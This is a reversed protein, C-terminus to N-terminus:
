SVVRYEYAKSGARIRKEVNYNGYKAARLERLRATVSSDSITVKHRTLIIDCLEYPMRWSGDSMIKLVIANLTGASPAKREEFLSTQAMM